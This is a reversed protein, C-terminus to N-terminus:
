MSVLSLTEGNLLLRERLIAKCIMTGEDRKKREKRRTKPGKKTREKKLPICCEAKDAFAKFTLQIMVQSSCTKAGSWNEIPPDFDNVWLTAKNGEKWFNGKQDKISVADISEEPILFFRKFIKDFVHDQSVERIEHPIGTYM